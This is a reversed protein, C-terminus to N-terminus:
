VLIDSMSLPLYSVLPVPITRLIYFHLFIIHGLTLAKAVGVTGSFLGEYRPSQPHLIFLLSIM